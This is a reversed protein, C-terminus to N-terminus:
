LAALSPINGKLSISLPFDVSRNYKFFSKSIKLSLISFLDFSFNFSFFVANLGIGQHFLKLLLLSFPQFSLIYHSCSTQQLCKIRRLLLLCLLISNGFLISELFRFFTVLPRNGNKLPKKVTSYLQM